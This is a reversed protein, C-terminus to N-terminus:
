WHGGLALGVGRTGVTASVKPSLGPRTRSRAELAPIGWTFLASVATGTAGGWLLGYSLVQRSFLTECLDDIVACGGDAIQHAHWALSASSAVTVLGFAGVAVPGIRSLLTHHSPVPQSPLPPVTALEPVISVTGQDLILTVSPLSPVQVWQSAWGAGEEQLQVFHLGPVLRIPTAPELRM